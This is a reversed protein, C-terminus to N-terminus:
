PPRQYNTFLFNNGLAVVVTARPRILGFEHDLEDREWGHSSAVDNKAEARSRKPARSRRPTKNAAESFGGDAEVAYEAIIDTAQTL